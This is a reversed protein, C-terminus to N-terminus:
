RVAGLIFGGRGAHIGEGPAGLEGDEVHCVSVVAVVLAHRPTLTVFSKEKDGVHDCLLSSHKGEGLKESATNKTM